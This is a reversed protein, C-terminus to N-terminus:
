WPFAFTPQNAYRDVSITLEAGAGPDLHVAFSRNNVPYEKGGVKVWLCEHEGYAGTQVVVDRSELQNINVLTVNTLGGEMKTVLAAVDAPLGARRQEPDFFRVRTHLTWIRGTLNGGLMLRVLENVEVPNYELSWDALRTDPTTPDKRINEMKSRITELQARLSEEPYGPNKGELFDIWGNGRIRELDSRDM